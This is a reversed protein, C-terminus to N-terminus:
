VVISESLMKRCHAKKVFHKLLLNKRCGVMGIKKLNVRDLCNGAWGTYITFDIKTSIQWLAALELIHYETKEVICKCFLFKKVQWFLIWSAFNKEIYVYLLREPKKLKKKKKFVIMFLHLTLSLNQCDSIFRLWLLSLYLTLDLELRLGPLNQTDGLM